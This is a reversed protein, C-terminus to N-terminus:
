GYSSGNHIPLEAYTTLYIYETRTDKYIDDMAKLYIYETRTDEYIDDMTM